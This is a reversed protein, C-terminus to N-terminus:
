RECPVPSASFRHRGPGPTFQVLVDGDRPSIGEIYYSARVTDGPAFTHPWSAAQLGGHEVVRANKRGASTTFGVIEADRPAYVFLQSAIHGRPVRRGYGTVQRPLQEVDQPVRSALTVDVRIRGVGDCDPHATIDMDQYYGMKSQTRDHLYVGVVPTDGREGRLEGAVRTGTLVEQESRHRSWFMFRGQETAETLAQLSKTIEVDGEIFHDFVAASTRSFYADQEELDTIELYIQNLLVDVANDADLTRGGPVEVPGTVELLGALTVPDVALAGDVRDGTAGTWIGSALQTSRPFDPTATVNLMYRGLAPGFLDREAPRLPVVPRGLDGFSSGPRSRVLQVRGRNARLEIVSGTIGGLARPEANNQVLVLYRRPGQAGLVSPLIEAARAGAGVLTTLTSIQESAEVFQPRLQPLLAQPDVEDLREDALRASDAGATLFPRSRRIPALKVRSDQPELDGPEIVEAVSVLQPLVGHALEDAAETLGQVAGIDAGIGPMWSALDWHPGSLASRAKASDRGIAEVTSRLAEEDGDVVQQRVTPAQDAVARLHNYASWAQYAMLVGLGLLLLPVLIIVLRRARRRRARRRRSSGTTRAAPSM